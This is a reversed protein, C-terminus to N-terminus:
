TAPETRLIHWAFASNAGVLVVNGVQSLLVQSSIIEALILLAGVGYFIAPARLPGATKALATVFAGVGGYFALGGVALVGLVSQLARLLDATAASGAGDSAYQGVLMEGSFVAAFAGMGILILVRATYGLRPNRDTALRTIALAGPVLLLMGFLLLLHAGYWRSAHAVVIVAQDAADMREQPHVLDGISMLLPGVVLSAAAIVTRSNRRSVQQEVATATMLAVTRVRGQARM